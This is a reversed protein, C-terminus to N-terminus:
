FLDAQPRDGNECAPQPGWVHTQSLSRTVYTSEKSLDSPGLRSSSRMSPTAM